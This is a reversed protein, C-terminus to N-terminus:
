GEGEESGWEVVGGKSGADAVDGAAGLNRVGELARAAATENREVVLSRLACQLFIALKDVSMGNPVLELVQEVNFWGAFRELLETTQTFQETIDPLRLLEELLHAFLTTQSSRASNPSPFASPSTSSTSRSACEPSLVLPVSAASNPSYIGAGGLLCYRVATDYDGLGHVLLRIAERHKGQRGCLVISEPVLEDSFPALRTM